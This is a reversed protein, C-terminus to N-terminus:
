HAQARLIGPLEDGLLAETNAIAQALTFQYEVLLARTEILEQATARLHAAMDPSDRDLMLAIGYLGDLTPCTM